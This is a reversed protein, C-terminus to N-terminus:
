IILKCNIEIYFLVKIDCQLMKVVVGQKIRLQFDDEDEYGFHMTDAAFSFFTIFM